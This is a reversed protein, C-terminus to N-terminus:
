EGKKWGGRGKEKGGGGEKGSSSDPFHKFLIQLKNEEEQNGRHYPVEDRVEDTVNEKVEDEPVRQIHM